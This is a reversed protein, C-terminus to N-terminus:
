SYPVIEMPVSLFRSLDWAKQIVNRPTRDYYDDVPTLPITGQERTQMYLVGSSLEPNPNAQLILSQIDEMRVRLFIRRYTGPFGYRFFCVMKNKKDFFNYGSGVNWFILLWWHLSLFLGAIGYFTLTVGQPLFPVVFESSILSFFHRGYYSSVSIYLVGLSGLLTFSAWFFNIPKRSGPVIDLWADQSRCCHKESGWSIFKPVNVLLASMVILVLGVLFVYVNIM